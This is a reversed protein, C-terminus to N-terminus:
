KRALAIVSLGYPLDFRKLLRAELALVKVLWSDWSRSALDPDHADPSELGLTSEVLRKAAAVPFLITNAYTLREVQLGAAQLKRRLERASYRRQTHVAHDHRGRLLNYAPERIMVWGGPRLVRGMEALVQVDDTIARHYLVDFCTVLDFTNDHFPLAEATAQVVGPLERLRCYALAEASMDIGVAQAYENFQALMGGTGCGVDLIRTRVPQRPISGNLMAWTIRQMGVYWWHSDESEFIQAYAEPNVKSSRGCCSKLKMAARRM